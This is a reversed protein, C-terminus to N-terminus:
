NGSIEKGLDDYSNASGKIRKNYNSGFYKEELSGAHAQTFSGFKNRIERGHTDQGGVRSSYNCLTCSAM